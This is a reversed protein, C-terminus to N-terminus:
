LINQLGPEISGPRPLDRRTVQREM